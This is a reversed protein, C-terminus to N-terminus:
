VCKTGECLVQDEAVAAVNARLQSGGEAVACRAGGGPMWPHSSRCHRPRLRTPRGAEAMGGQAEAESAQTTGGAKACENQTQLCPSPSDAVLPLSLM